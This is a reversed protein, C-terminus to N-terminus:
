LRTPDAASHRFTVLFHLDLDGFPAQYQAFGWIKQPQRISIALGGLSEDTLLQQTIWQWLSDLSQDVPTGAAGKVWLALKVTLNTEATSGKRETVAELPYLSGYPLQSPAVERLRCREVTFGTPKSIPGRADGNLRSAMEALILQERSDTM